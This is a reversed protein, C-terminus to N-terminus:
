EVMVREAQGMSIMHEALCQEDCFTDKGSVISEEGEYLDADCHDCSTIRIAEFPDIRQERM